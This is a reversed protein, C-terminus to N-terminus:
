PPDTADRGRKPRPPHDLRDAEEVPDYDVDTPEDENSPESLDLLATGCEPCFKPGPGIPSGCKPCMSPSPSM